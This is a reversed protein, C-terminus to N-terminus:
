DCVGNTASGSTCNFSLTVPYNRVDIATWSVQLTLQKTLAGTFTLPTEKTITSWAIPPSVIDGGVLQMDAVPYVDNFLAAAHVHGVVAKVVFPSGDFAVSPTVTTEIEAPYIPEGVM